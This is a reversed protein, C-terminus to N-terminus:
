PLFPSLFIFYFEFCEILCLPTAFVHFVYLETLVRVHVYLLFWMQVKNENFRVEPSLLVFSYSCSNMSFSLVLPLFKNQKDLVNRSGCVFSLNLMLQNEGETNWKSKYLALDRYYLSVSANCMLWYHHPPFLGVFTEMSLFAGSIQMERWKCRREVQVDEEADWKEKTAGVCRLVVTVRSPESRFFCWGAWKSLM